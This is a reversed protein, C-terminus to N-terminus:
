LTEINHKDFKYPWQEEHYTISCFKKLAVRLPKIIQADDGKITHLVEKVAKANHLDSTESIALVINEGRKEIDFFYAGPELWWTIQRRENNQIKTIANYLEDLPDNLVDSADFELHFDQHRFDVPLWGHSPVGFTVSILNEM